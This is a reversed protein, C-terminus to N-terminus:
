QVRNPFSILRAWLHHLGIGGLTNSLLNWSSQVLTALSPGLIRIFRLSSKWAWPGLNLGSKKTFILIPKGEKQGQIKTTRTTYPKIRINRSMKLLRQLIMKIMMM